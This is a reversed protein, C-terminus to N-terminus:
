RAARRKLRQRTRTIPETLCNVAAAFVQGSIRTATLMTAGCEFADFPDVLLYKDAQSSAQSCAISNKIPWTSYFRTLVRFRSVRARLIAFGGARRGDMGVTLSLADLDALANFAPLRSGSEEEEGVDEGEFIEFSKALVAVMGDRLTSVNNVRKFLSGIARLDELAGGGFGTTVSMLHPMELLVSTTSAIQSAVAGSALATLIVAADQETMDAASSGRGKKAIMDAARLSQLAVVGSSEPLGLSVSLSQALKGSSAM